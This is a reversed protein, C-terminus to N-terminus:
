AEVQSREALLLELADDWTPLARVAKYRQLADLTDRRVRIWATNPFNVDMVERWVAVPLRFSTEKHWPVQQVIMGNEGRSFVSGSFLLLLPIEGGELAQFYKASAAVEFDYTCPVPLDVTTSGTFGPVMHSVHAFTFPKLTDSWRSPEGFLDLLREEEAAAYRRRQPEIRMQCRLAIADVADGSADTIRLKFLLLPAVAYRDPRAAICEFSLEGM